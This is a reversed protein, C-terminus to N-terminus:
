TIRAVAVRMRIKLLCNSYTQKIRSNLHLTELSSFLEQIGSDATVGGLGGEFHLWYKESARADQHLPM